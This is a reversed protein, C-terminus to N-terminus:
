CTQHVIHSHQGYWEEYEAIGRLRFDASFDVIKLHRPLGKIIEEAGTYCQCGFPWHSSGKQEKGFIARM